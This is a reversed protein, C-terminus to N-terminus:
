DHSTVNKVKTISIKVELSSVVNTDLGLNTFASATEGFISSSGKLPALFM